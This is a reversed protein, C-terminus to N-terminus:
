TQQASVQGCLEKASGIDVIRREEDHREHFVAVQAVVELRMMLCVFQFQHTTAGIYKQSEAIPLGMFDGKAQLVKVGLHRGDDM